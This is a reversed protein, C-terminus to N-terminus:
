HCNIFQSLLFSMNTILTVIFYSSCCLNLGKWTVLGPTLFPLVCNSALFTKYLAQCALWFVFSFLLFFMNWCNLVNYSRVLVITSAAKCMFNVWLPCLSFRYQLIIEGEQWIDLRDDVVTPGAQDSSTLIDADPYRALYPLPNQEWFSLLYFITFWKM